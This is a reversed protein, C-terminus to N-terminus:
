TMPQGGASKAINAKYPRMPAVSTITAMGKGHKGEGRKEGNKAQKRNGETESGKQERAGGARGAM